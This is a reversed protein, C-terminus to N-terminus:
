PFARMAEGPEDRVSGSENLLVGIESLDLSEWDIYADGLASLEELEPSYKKNGSCLSTTLEARLAESQTPYAFVLYEEGLTFTVGCSSGRTGTELWIEHNDVGQWSRIVRFLTMQTTSSTLELDRHIQLYGGASPSPRHDAPYWHEVRKLAVVKGVFITAGNGLKSNMQSAINTDPQMPACSCALAGGATFFASVVAVAAATTVAFQSSSHLSKM